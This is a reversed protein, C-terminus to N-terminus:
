LGYEDLLAQQYAPDTTSRLLDETRGEEILKKVLENIRESKEKEQEKNQAAKVIELAEKLNEM